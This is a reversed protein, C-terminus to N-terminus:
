RVRLTPNPGTNSSSRPSPIWGIPRSGTKRPFLRGDLPRPHSCFVPGGKGGPTPVVGTLPKTERISRLQYSLFFWARDRGNMLGPLVLPGGLTAGLQNRKFEAKRQEFFNRADLNDNRHFWFWGGHFENTGSKTVAM